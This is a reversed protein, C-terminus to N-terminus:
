LLEKRTYGLSDCAKTTADLFRGWQPEIAFICDNSREILNRFLRLMEEAKKREAISGLWEAVAHLLDDEEPLFLEEGNNVTGGIHYVEIVGFSKGHSKIPTNRSSESKTFNDTTFLIGDLNIRVCMDRPYRYADSNM